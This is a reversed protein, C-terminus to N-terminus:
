IKQRTPRIRIDDVHVHAPRSLVFQVAEAVDIAELLPGSQKEIEGFWDPDYGAVRQFESHVFGPEILTVRIRSSCTEQRLAEVLSHVAFKTSGYVPNFASVHRGITSGIVVIDRPRPKADTDADRVFIAACERLQRAVALYNVEMLRQWLAADSNLLTGPLGHGACLVYTDVSRRWAKEAARFLRAALQDDTVDGPVTVIEGGAQTVESKLARLRATRRGTAVVAYGQSALVKATAAGIGSTAGTVIAVRQM